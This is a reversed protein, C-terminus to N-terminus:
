FIFCHTSGRLISNGEWSFQQCSAATFARNRGIVGYEGLGPAPNWLLELGSIM